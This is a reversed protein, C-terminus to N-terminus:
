CVLINQNNEQYSTMSKCFTFCIKLHASESAKVVIQQNNQGGEINLHTQNDNCVSSLCNVKVVLFCQMQDKVHSPVLSFAIAVILFISEKCKALLWANLLVDFYVQVVSLFVSTSRKV